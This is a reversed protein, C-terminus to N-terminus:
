FCLTADFAARSYFVHLHSFDHGRSNYKAKRSSDFYVHLRDGNETQVQSLYKTTNRNFCIKHNDYSLKTFCNYHSRIVFRLIKHFSSHGIQDFKNLTKSISGTNIIM